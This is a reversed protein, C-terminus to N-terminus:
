NKWKHIWLKRHTSFFFRVPFDTMCPLIQTELLSTYCYDYIDNATNLPMHYNNNIYRVLIHCTCPPLAFSCLKSPSLLLVKWSDISCPAPQRNYLHVQCSAAIPIEHNLSCTLKRLAYSSSLRIVHGFTKPREYNRKRLWSMESMVKRYNKILFFHLNKALASKIFRDIILICSSCM